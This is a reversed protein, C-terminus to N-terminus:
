ELGYGNLYRVTELVSDFTHVTLGRLNDDHDGYEASGDIDFDPDVTNTSLYRAPICDDWHIETLDLTRDTM